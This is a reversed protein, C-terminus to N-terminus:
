KMYKEVLERLKDIRFPKTLFDDCGADFARQVDPAFAYASLAVVPITPDVQKIIRTADLGDMNPMMIDMLIMSPHCETHLQVAEVGDRARVLEYQKGLVVKVLEYNTDSDEAVLIRGSREIEKPEVDKDGTTVTAQNEVNVTKGTLVCPINLTFTSGEGLKTDVTINGNMKEAIMRSLPLGLGFGKKENKKTADKTYYLEFIHASVEPSMGEGTDSVYFSITKRDSSLEYGTTIKGKTTHKLSNSIFNSLVQLIRNKDAEIFVGTVKPTDVSMEVEEPCRFTFVNLSENLMADVDIEENMLTIEGREVRSLDLVEDVLQQLRNGSSEVIQVYRAKDEPSDIESLIRSFGIVANLPTRIEHSMNALFLSKMKSAETAAAAKEEYEKLKRNAEALEDQLRKVEKSNSFFGM